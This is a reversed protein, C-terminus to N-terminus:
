NGFRPVLVFPMVIEIKAPSTNTLNKSNTQIWTATEILDRVPFGTFSDDIGCCQEFLAVARGAHREIGNENGERAKVGAAAIKILGQVFRANITTREFAHWVAEWSEHSEWYYGHNFLDIGCLYQNCQSLNGNPLEVRPEHRGFSHGDPERIPHPFLRPVYSYTPLAGDTLRPLYEPIRDVITESKPFEEPM